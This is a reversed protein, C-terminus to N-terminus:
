RRQLRDPLTAVDSDAPASEIGTARVLFLASEGRNATIGAGTAVVHGDLGRFAGSSRRAAWSGVTYSRHVDQLGVVVDEHEASAERDLWDYRARRLFM